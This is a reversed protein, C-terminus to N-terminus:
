WCVATRFIDQDIDGLLMHLIFPICQYIAKDSRGPYIVRSAWPGKAHEVFDRVSETRGPINPHGIPQANVPGAAQLIPDM